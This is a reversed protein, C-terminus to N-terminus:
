MDLFLMHKYFCTIYLGTFISITKCARMRQMLIGVLLVGDGNTEDDEVNGLKSGNQEKIQYQVVANSTKSNGTVDMSIQHQENVVPMDLCLCIWAGNRSLQSIQCLILFLTGAGAQDNEGQVEANNEETKTKLRILHPTWIAVEGKELKNARKLFNEYNLLIRSEDEAPVLTHGIEPHFEFLHAVLESPNGHLSPLANYSCNQFGILKCFYFPRYLTM